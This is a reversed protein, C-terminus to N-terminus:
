GLPSRVAALAARREAWRKRIATALQRPKLSEVFVRETLAARETASVRALMVLHEPKIRGGDFMRRNALQEVEDRTFARVVALLDYFEARRSGLYTALQEVAYAGYVDERECTAALEVGADYRLLLTGRAERALLNDLTKAVQHTPAIMDYYNSVRRTRAAPEPDTDHKM